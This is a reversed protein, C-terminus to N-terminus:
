LFKRFSGAAILQNAIFEFVKEYYEEPAKEYAQTHGAGEVTYLEKTSNCAEYLEVANSPAVIKDELGQIFMLPIDTNGVADIARADFLNYGGELRLLVASAEILGFCPLGTFERVNAKFLEFPDCFASDCIGCIIHERINSDKDTGSSITDSGLGAGAQSSIQNQGLDEVIATGTEETLHTIEACLHIVAAAGMSQGCIVIQADPDTDLIAHIWLLNDKRDVYGMGIYDGESEGHCRMDPTLVNFGAKYFRCALSYMEEKWGTYGHLLIVWPAGSEEQTFYSAILKYGDDTTVSIKKIGVEKLWERKESQNANMSAVIDDTYVQQSYGKETFTEFADLKEMFSPVLAAELTIQACILYIAAMAVILISFIKKTNTKKM